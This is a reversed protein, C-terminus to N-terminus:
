SRSLWFIALTGLNILSLAGGGFLAILAWNERIALAAEHKRRIELVHQEISIRSHDLARVVNGLGQLRMDITEALRQVEPGLAGVAAAKTERPTREAAERVMEVVLAMQQFPGNQVGFSSAEGPERVAGASSAKLAEVDESLKGLKRALIRLSSDIRTIFDAVNPAIDDSGAEAEETEDHEAGEFQLKMNVM